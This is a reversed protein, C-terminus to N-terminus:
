AAVMKQKLAASLRAFFLATVLGLAVELILELNFNRIYIGVGFILAVMVIWTPIFDFLRALPKIKALPLLILMGLYAAALAIAWMLYPHTYLFEVRHVIRFHKILLILPFHVYLYKHRGAM